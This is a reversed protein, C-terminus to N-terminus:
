PHGEALEFARLVSEDKATLQDKVDRVHERQTRQRSGPSPPRPKRRRAEELSITPNSYSSIVPQSPDRDISAKMMGKMWNRLVVPDDLSFFHPRESEHVIKFGYRGLSTNEDAVVKYGRMNIHGKVKEAAPDRLVILDQGKLAIYRSHWTNYREGKKKIWGQMDVPAIKHLVLPSNDYVSSTKAPVAPAEGSPQAAAASAGTAGAGAGTAVFNANSTPLSIQAKSPASARVAKNGDDPVRPEKRPSFLNRGMDPLHLLRSSSSSASPQRVPREASAQLPEAAPHAAARQAASEPTATSPSANPREAGRAPSVVPSPAAAATPSATAAPAPKPPTATAALYSPMVPPVARITPEEPAKGAAAFHAPPALMINTGLQSGSLYLPEARAAGYSSVPTDLHHTSWESTPSTMPAERVSASSPLTPQTSVSPSWLPASVPPTPTPASSGTISVPASLPAAAGAAALASSPPVPSAHTSTSPPPAMGAAQARLEKIGNALHFRRGFAVIDIEKLMNIDMVLLADGSIEHEALKDITQPDYGKARAWALVEEVSWQEPNKSAPPAASRAASAPSTAPASATPTAAPAPSTATATAPPAAPVPSATAAAARPSSGAASAAQPQKSESAAPASPAVPPVVPAAAPPPSLPAPKEQPVAPPTPETGPLYPLARETSPVSPANATETPKAASPVLPAVGLGVPEESRAPAAPPVETRPSVSAESLFGGPLNLEQETNQPLVPLEAERAPSRQVESSRPEDRERPLEPISELVKPQPTLPSADAVPMARLSTDEHSAPTSSLGVASGVASGVAGAVAAPVAAVAAASEVVSPTTDRAPEANDTRPEPISSDATINGVDEGDDESEDSMELYALPTVGTGLSIHRVNNLANNPDRSLDETDLAGSRWPGSVDDQQAAKAALSKQANKALAERAAARAAFDHVAGEDDDADTAVSGAQSLRGNEKGHLETIANDIDAMTSRMVGPDNSAAGSASSAIDATGLVAAAGTPAEASPAEAENDPRAQTPAADASPEKETGRAAAGDLMKQAAARDYTTYSFPFLGTEGRVNTGQFWGDGYADDKEVVVIQEGVKFSVEDPNEAEFNYLAYVYEEANAAM